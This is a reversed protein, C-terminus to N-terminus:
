SYTKPHKAIMRTCKWMEDKTKSHEKSTRGHTTKKLFKIFKEMTNDAALSKIINAV